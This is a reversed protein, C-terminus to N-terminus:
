WWFTYFFPTINIYTKVCFCSFFVNTVIGTAKINTFTVLFNQLKVEVYQTVEHVQTHMQANSKQCEGM